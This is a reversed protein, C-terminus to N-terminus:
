MGADDQDKIWDNISLFDMEEACLVPSSVVPELRIGILSEATYSIITDNLRDMTRTIARNVMKSINNLIQM